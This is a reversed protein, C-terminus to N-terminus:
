HRLRRVTFHELKNPRAAYENIIREFDKRQSIHEQMATVRRDWVPEVDVIHEIEDPRRGDPFHVFYETIERSYELPLTYYFLRSAIRTKDFASTTASAVAMHDLHGTVGNLDFTLLTDPQFDKIKKTIAAELKALQTNCIKGDIFGMFSVDQIGLKTAARRLENARLEAGTGDDIFESAEGKTACILHMHVGSDAWTLITGGPGFAEDDPHAFVLLARKIAKM